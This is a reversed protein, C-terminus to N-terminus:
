KELLAVKSWLPLSPCKQVCTILIILVKLITGSLCYPFYARHETLFKSMFVTSNSEVQEKCRCLFYSSPFIKTKM